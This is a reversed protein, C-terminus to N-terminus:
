EAEIKQGAPVLFASYPAAWHHERSGERLISACRGFPIVLSVRRGLHDTAKPSSVGAVLSVDPLVVNKLQVRFAQRGDLAGFRSPADPLKALFEGCSAEDTFELASGQGFPLQLRLAPHPM